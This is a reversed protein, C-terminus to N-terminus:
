QETRYRYEVPKEEGPPLTLEFGITYADLKKYPESSTLVEFSGSLSSKVTVTVTEKKSNKVIVNVAEEHLRARIRKFDTTKRKATIDFASGAKVRVDVGEPTNGIREEGIFFPAGRDDETYIRMIGAPLPSGANNEKSNKFIVSVEVPLKTGEDPEGLYDGRYGARYGPRDHVIYEKKVGALTSAMYAFRRSEGDMVTNEGPIEIRYYEFVGKTEPVSSQEMLAVSRKMRPYNAEPARNIDGAVVNISADKFDAGTTNRVTIWSSLEAKDGSNSLTLSYDASWDIGGALYIATLDVATPRKSDYRINLGPALSVGDRAGPAPLVIRGPHNLHVEGDILFVPGGDVRLLKAAIEKTREQFDNDEVLTVEKGIFKKLIKSNSALDYTFGAELVKFGGLAGGRKDRAIVRLTEARLTKPVDLMTLTALPSALQLDRTEAVLAPGASYITLTLSSRDAGTTSHKLEAAM